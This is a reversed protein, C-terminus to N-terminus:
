INYFFFLKPYLFSLVSMFIAPSYGNNMSVTITIFFLLSPLQYYIKMDYIMEYEMILPHVPFSVTVKSFNKGQKKETSIIYFHLMISKFYKNFM